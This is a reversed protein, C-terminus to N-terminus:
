QAQKVYYTKGTGEKQLEVRHDGGLWRYPKKPAYFAKSWEKKTPHRVIGFAGTKNCELMLVHDGLASSFVVWERKIDENM